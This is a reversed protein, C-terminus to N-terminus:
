HIRGQIIYETDTEKKLTYTKSGNSNDNLDKLKDVVQQKTWVTKEVAVEVLPQWNESLGETIIRM